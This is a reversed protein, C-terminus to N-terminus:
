AMPCVQTEYDKDNKRIGALIRGEEMFWFGMEMFMQWLQTM